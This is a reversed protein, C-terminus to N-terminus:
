SLGRTSKEIKAVYDAIERVVVLNGATNDRIAVLALYSDVQINRIDEALTTAVMQQHLMEDINASMLSLRENRVESSLRLATVGGQIASGTTESIQQFSQSSANVNTQRNIDFGKEKAIEDFREAAKYAVEATSSINDIMRGYLEVLDEENGGNELISLAEDQYDSLYSAYIGEVLMKQLDGVAGGMNQKLIDAGVMSGRSLGSITADALQSSMDGFISSLMDKMGDVAEQYKENLDIANKIQKRQEETIQTNTQLFLKANDVDLYGDEGFIEPAIDGLAKFEDQIGFFNAFGSNDKTKVMMTQLGKMGRAIADQYATFANSTETRMGSLRASINMLNGWIGTTPLFISKGLGEWKETFEDPTWDADNLNKIEKQYERLSSVASKAYGKLMGSRDTGFISSYDTSKVSLEALQMAHAFDEANHKMEETEATAVEFAEVAQQALDTVGGVVAGIWSGSSKYGEYAASLNQAFAGLGEAAESLKENNTLNGIQKMVDLAKQMSKIIGDVVVAKWDM